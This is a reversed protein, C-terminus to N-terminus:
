CGRCITMDSIPIYKVRLRKVSLCLRPFPLAVDDEALREGKGEVQGLLCVLRLRCLIITDM